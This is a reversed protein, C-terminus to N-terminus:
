NLRKVLKKRSLGMFVFAIILMIISNPILIVWLNGALFLTQLIEVFYRAVMFRTIFQIIIPMSGIDFIFGSLIFAPLYTTIIAIQMALYQNKTTTSIFLGIALSACLYISATIFLMILSGRFPVDFIKVSVFLTLASGMIGLIYYPLLKAVLVERMRIPTVMLAEITGREWERAMVLATLLAGILTMIIAILGPILFNKSRLEENYWVRADLKILPEIDAASEKKQRSLWGQWVGKVYGSILRATNSDVGNVIVQVTAGDSTRLAESFNNRIHIIAKVRGDVIMTEAESMSNVITPEFYKSGYFGSLFDSADLSMTDSVIAVPVHEVDLSVGYGFIILLLMPLFFAIAISSPDRLIQIFEKKIFGLLRVLMIKKQSISNPDDTYPIKTFM